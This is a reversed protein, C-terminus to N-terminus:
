LELDFRIQYVQRSRPEVYLVGATDDYLLAFPLLKERVASGANLDVPMRPRAVKVVYNRGDKRAFYDVFLSSGLEKDNVRVKIAVKRKGHTVEYGYDALLETVEDPRVKAAAVPAKVGYPRRLWRRFAIWGWVALAALLVALVQVDDNM